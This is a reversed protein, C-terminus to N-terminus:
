RPIPLGERKAARALREDFCAFLPPTGADRIELGSSLHVADYGRLARREALAGARRLLSESLQIRAFSDWELELNGTVKRLQALTLFRERRLRAFAARAEPYAIASTAVADAERVLSQVLGSGSEDVYLKM